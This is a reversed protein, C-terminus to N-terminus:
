LNMWAVLAALKEEARWSGVLSRGLASVARKVNDESLALAAAAKAYAERELIISCM